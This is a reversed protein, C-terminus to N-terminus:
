FASRLTLRYIDPFVVKKKFAIERFAGPAKEAWQAEGLERKKMNTMWLSQSFRCADTRTQLQPFVSEPLGGATLKTKDENAWAYLDEAEQIFTGVPMYPTKLQDDPVAQAEPLITDYAQKSM